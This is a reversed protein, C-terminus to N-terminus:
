GQILTCQQSDDLICAEGAAHWDVSTTDVKAIVVEMLSSLGLVDELLVLEGNMVDRTVLKGEGLRLVGSLEVFEFTLDLKGDHNFCVRVMGDPLESGLIESGDDLRNLEGSTDESGDAVANMDLSSIGLHQQDKADFIM